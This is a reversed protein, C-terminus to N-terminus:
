AKAAALLPKNEDAEETEDPVKSSPFLAPAPPAKSAKGGSARFFVASLGSFIGDEFEKPFTKMMSWLWILCLQLCFGFTQLKGIEEHMLIVGAFVIMADKAIGALVFAVGSSNKVFQAIVVNLTFAVCSNLLLVPWWAVFHAWDPQKLGLNLGLGTISFLLGALFMFCLPAVMLVYSLADLKKGEGSLLLAQFVIKLSEFIQGSLQIAVGLASWHLEGEITLFVAGVVFVLLCCKRFCFAELGVFLSLLFVLAVNGEKLMQLFAVSVYKYAQNSCVLQVSFFAAIPLTGCLVYRANIKVKKEPDTLSPFLSPFVLRLCGALLSSFGMQSLTLAVSFPFRDKHMLYKNFSILGSSIGIYLCGYFAMMVWHTAAGQRGNDSTGFGASM